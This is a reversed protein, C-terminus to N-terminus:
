TDIPSRSVIVRSCESLTPTVSIKVIVCFRNDAFCEQIISAHKPMTVVNGNLQWSALAGALHDPIRNAADFWPIEDPGNAVGIVLKTKGSDIGFRECCANHNMAFMDRAMGDWAEIIKDRDSCWGVITANAERTLLSALYAALLSVILVQRFLKLSPSKKDLSKRMQATKRLVSNFYQIGDPQKQRWGRIM